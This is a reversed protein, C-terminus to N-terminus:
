CLRDRLEVGVEYVYDVVPFGLEMDLLIRGFRKLVVQCLGEFPARVCVCVCMYINDSVDVWSCHNFKTFGIRLVAKEKEKKREDERIKREEEMRGGREKRLAKMELSLSLFLFKFVMINADSFRIIFIGKKVCIRPPLNSVTVLDFPHDFFVM